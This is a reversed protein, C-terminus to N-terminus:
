GEKDRPNAKMIKIQTGPLPTGAAFLDNWHPKNISMTIVGTTESMGYCNQLPINLSAFFEITQKKMPAAGFLFMKNQSLGLAKRVNKFVLQNAISFGFPVSKGELQRLTAPYGIKKAWAGIRKALGGKKAAVEKM